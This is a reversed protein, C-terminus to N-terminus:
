WISNSEFKHFYFTHVHKRKSFDIELQFNWCMEEMLIAERDLNWRHSDSHFARVRSHISFPYTQGTFTRGDRQCFIRFLSWKTLIPSANVQCFKCNDHLGCLQYSVWTSKFSCGLVINMQFMFLCITKITIAGLRNKPKIQTVEQIM